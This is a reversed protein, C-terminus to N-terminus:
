KETIKSKIMLGYFKISFFHKFCNFTSLFHDNLRVVFGTFNYEIHSVIYDTLDHTVKVDIDSM